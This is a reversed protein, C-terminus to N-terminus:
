EDKESGCILSIIKEGSNQITLSLFPELKIFSLKKQVLKQDWNVPNYTKSQNEACRKLVYPSYKYFWLEGRSGYGSGIFNVCDDKLFDLSQIDQVEYLDKATVINTDIHYIESNRFGNYQCNVLMDTEKDIRNYKLDFISNANTGAVDGSGYTRRFQLTTANLSVVDFCNLYFYPYVSNQRIKSAIIFEGLEKGEVLIESMVNGYVALENFYGYFIHNGPTPHNFYYVSGSSDINDRVTVIVQQNTAAVDDYVKSTEEGTSKYYEWGLVNDKVCDILCTKGTTEKATAIVHIRSDYCSRFVELRHCYNLEYMLALRISSVPFTALNIFGVYGILSGRYISGCFYLTDGFVEMDSVHIDELITIYPASVGNETVMVFTTSDYRSSCIVRKDNKYERVLTIEGPLNDINKIYEQAQITPAFTGLMAMLLCETIILKKM